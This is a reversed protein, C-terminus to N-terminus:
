ANLQVVLSEIESQSSPKGFFGIRHYSLAEMISQQDPSKKYNLYDNMSSAEFGSTKKIADEILKAKYDNNFSFLCGCNDRFEGVKKNLAKNLTNLQQNLKEKANYQSEFNKSNVGISNTLLNDKQKNDNFSMNSNFHSEKKLLKQKESVFKPSNVEKANNNMMTEARTLQWSIEIRNLDLAIMLATKGNHNQLNIDTEPLNTLREVEHSENVAVYYMLDTYAYKEKLSPRTKEFETPKLRKLLDIVLDNAQLIAAQCVEENIEYGANLLLQVAEIGVSFAKILDKEKKILGPSTILARLKDYNSSPESQLKELAIAVISNQDRGLEQNLNINPQSLLYQVLELSVKPEFARALASNGVGVALNIDANNELLLKVLELKNTTVAIILPTEKGFMYSHVSQDVNAGKAILKQAMEYRNKDIAYVLPTDCDHYLHNIKESSKSCSAFAANFLEEDNFRIAHILREIDNREHQNIIDQLNEPLTLNLVLSFSCILRKVQWKYQDILQEAEATEPKYESLEIFYHEFIFIECKLKHQDTASLNEYNNFPKNAKRTKIKEILIELTM